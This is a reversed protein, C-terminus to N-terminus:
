GEPLAQIRKDQQLARRAAKEGAAIAEAARHFQWFDIAEVAPSIVLDAEKLNEMAIHHGSIAMSQGLIYILGPPKPVPIDPFGPGLLRSPRGARRIRPRHMRISTRFINEIEQLYSRLPQNDDNLSVVTSQQKALKNQIRVSRLAVNKEKKLRLMIRAPDPIVNVAIIYDAAMERCVSTPVVNVLGGDVLYRRGIKVPNFIGPISISARVAEVVSGERLVVPEGTRIDTTVCAFKYKLKSFSLSGLMSKLLSFMRNGQILGSLPLTFDVLLAMRKWDIRLALQEIESASLGSAYLAGVVAGVSTGVIVDPVIGRKELVKLVGIHYLGRAVGGGLAFGILRRKKPLM